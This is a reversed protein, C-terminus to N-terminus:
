SGYGPTGIPYDIPDSLRQQYPPSPGSEPRTLPRDVKEGGQPGRHNPVRALAFSRLKPHPGEWPNKTLHWDFSWANAAAVDTALSQSAM